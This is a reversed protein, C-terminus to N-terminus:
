VPTVRDSADWQTEAGGSRWGGSVCVTCGTCTRQGMRCTRMLCVHGQKLPRPAQLGQQAGCGWKPSSPPGCVCQGARRASGTGGVKAGWCATHLRSAWYRLNCKPQTPPEGIRTELLCPGRLAVGWARVRTGSGRRDPHRINERFRGLEGLRLSTSEQGKQCSGFPRAHYPGQTHTERPSEKGQATEPTNSGPQAEPGPHSPDQGRTLGAHVLPLLSPPSGM